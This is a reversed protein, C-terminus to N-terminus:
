CAEEGRLVKHTMEALEVIRYPKSVVGSFGYAKFESMVPDDSYGSSVIVKVGPDIKRLHHIAEKGGMGGPITLDTIVVDFPRTGKFANEYLAIGEAGDKACGVEYGLLRLVKGTSERIIEEDDILLVRGEGRIVERQGMEVPGPRRKSAPLYVHFTTGVEVESDVAIHGHHNAIIAFATTLGLGSGKQKTTFFPDFINPLDRRAIGTGQDRISIRVYRGSELPFAEREKIIVNETRIKITGGRPM